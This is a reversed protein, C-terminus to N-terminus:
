QRAIARNIRVMRHAANQGLPQVGNRLRLPASAPFTSWPILLSSFGVLSSLPQFLRGLFQVAALPPEPKASPRNFAPRQTEPM